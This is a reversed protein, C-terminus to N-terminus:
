PDVKEKPVFSWRFGGATQSKGNCVQSINSQRIETERAAAHMSPYEAIIQGNLKMQYVPKSVKKIYKQRGIKGCVPCGRGWARQNPELWYDPHGKPCIWLVKAVANPFIEDPGVPNEPSWEKALEPHESLFSKPLVPPIVEKSGDTTEDTFRWYCNASFQTKKRCATGIRGPYIGIEEAAEIASAYDKIKKGSKSYQTVKKRLSLRGCVPCGHGLARRSPSMLYDPHGAHCVWLVKKGSHPAYKDPGLPNDPSWDKALEPFEDKFSQIGQVTEREPGNAVEDAYRWIYSGATPNKGCCALTIAPHSMGVAEAAARVTAYEAIFKGARSYQRVARKKM